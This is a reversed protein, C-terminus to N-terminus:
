DEDEPSSVIVAYSGIGLLRDPSIHEGDVTLEELQGDTPNFEIDDVIGLEDGSDTLVRRDLLALDRSATRQEREDASDRVSESHKIMVADSGFSAIDGWSVFRGSAGRGGLYIAQITTAAPDVVLGNVTGAQEASDEVIVPHGQVARLSSV